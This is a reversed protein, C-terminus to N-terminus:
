WSRRPSTPTAHHGVLEEGRPALLEVAEAGVPDVRERVLEGADHRDGVDLGRVGVQGRALVGVRAVADGPAQVGPAALPLHGEQVEVVARPADLQLRADVLEALLAHRAQELEVEAVQHADVAEGEAGPAALQAQADLVEGDQGLAQARRGVLEVAEAVDLRAEAM